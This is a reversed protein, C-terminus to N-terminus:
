VVDDINNPISFKESKIYSLINSRPLHATPQSTDDKPKYRYWQVHYLPEGYEAYNHNRSKDIRHNVIEDIVIWETEKEEEPKDELEHDSETPQGEVETPKDPQKRKPKVSQNINAEESVPVETGPEEDNQPLTHKM